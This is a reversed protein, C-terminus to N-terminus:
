KTSRAKGEGRGVGGGVFPQWVPYCQRLKKSKIFWRGEQYFISDVQHFKKQGATSFRTFLSTECPRKCLPTKVVCGVGLLSLFRKMGMECNRGVYGPACACHYDDDEYKAVCIASNMCPNRACPTQQKLSFSIGWYSGFLTILCCSILLLDLSTARM